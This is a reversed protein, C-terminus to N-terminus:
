WKPARKTYRVCDDLAEMGALMVDRIGGRHSAPLISAVRAPRTLNRVGCYSSIPYCSGFYPLVSSILCFSMTVRLLRDFFRFEQRGLLFTRTPFSDAAKLGIRCIFQSGFEAPAKAGYTPSSPRIRQLQANISLQYGALIRLWSRTTEVRGLLM